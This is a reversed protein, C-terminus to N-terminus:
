QSVPLTEVIKQMASIKDVCAQVDKQYDSLYAKKAECAAFHQVRKSNSEQLLEGMRAKSATLYDEDDSKEAPTMNKKQQLFAAMKDLANADTDVSSRDIRATDAAPQMSGRLFSQIKSRVEESNTREKLHYYADLIVDSADWNPRLGQVLNSAMGKKEAVEVIHAVSNPHFVSLAGVAKLLAGAVAPDAEDDSCKLLADVDIERMSACALANAAEVRVTPPEVKDEAVTVLSQVARRLDPLELARPLMGTKIYRIVACKGDNTAADSSAKLIVDISPSTFSRLELRDLAIVAERQAPCDPLAALNLVAESGASTQLESLIQAVERALDDDRTEAALKQLAHVVEPGHKRKSFEDKVPVLDTVTKVSEISQILAADSPAATGDPPELGLRRFDKLLMAKHISSDKAKEWQRMYDARVAQKLAESEFDKPDYGREVLSPISESLEGLKLSGDAIENLVRKQEEIAGLGTHSPPLCALVTPISARMNNLAMQRLDFLLQGKEDASADRRIAQAACSLVRADYKAAWDPGDFAKGVADIAEKEEGYVYPTRFAAVMAAELIIAPEIKLTTDDLPDSASERHECPYSVREPLKALIKGLDGRRVAAEIGLPPKATSAEAVKDNTANPQAIPPVAVQPKAVPAKGLTLYTIVGVAVVCIVIILPVRRRKNM